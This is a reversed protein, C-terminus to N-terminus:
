YTRPDDMLTTRADVAERAPRSTGERIRLSAGGLLRRGSTRDTAQEARRDTCPPRPSRWRQASHREPEALVTPTPM